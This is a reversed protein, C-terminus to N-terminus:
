TLARFKPGARWIVQKREDNSNVAEILRAQEIGPLASFADFLNKSGAATIPIFLTPGDSQKLVWVRGLSPVSRIELRTMAAIDVTDGGLATLYSIQRETVEILGPGDGERNFQARHYAAWGAALGILMLLGGIAAGIWNFHTYAGWFVRLGVLAIVGAAFTEAWRRFFRTTEPRIFGRM